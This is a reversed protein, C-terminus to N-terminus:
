LALMAAQREGEAQRLRLLARVNAVLEEAEMPELLYGDAGADLSAVRDRSDILLASTLLVVTQSTAAAGKIWACLDRGDGDPLKVDLLVLDPTHELLYARAEAVSTAEAVAYGSKSLIRSKLYRKADSDDVNLIQAHPHLPDPTAGSAGRPGM